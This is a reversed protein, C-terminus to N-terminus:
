DSDRWEWVIEMDVKPYPTGPPVVFLVVRPKDAGFPDRLM